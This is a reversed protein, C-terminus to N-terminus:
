EGDQTAGVTERMSVAARWVEDMREALTDWNYRKAVMRRGEEAMDQALLPNRMAEVVLSILGSIDPSVALHHGHTLHLGEAGIRTSVVPTATALAELIKLRSGGGVRLPVIM